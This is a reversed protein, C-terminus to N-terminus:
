EWGKQFAAEIQNFTTKLGRWDRRRKEQSLRKAKTRKSPPVLGLERQRILVPRWVFYDEATLHDPRFENCFRCAVACNMWDNKGGRARSILHEITASDPGGDDTMLVGCYCYRHNQAESLLRRCIQRSTTGYPTAYPLHLGNGKSM